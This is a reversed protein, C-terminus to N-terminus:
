SDLYYEKKVFLRALIFINSIFLYNILFLNFLKEKVLYFSTLLSFKSRSQSEQVSFAKDRM